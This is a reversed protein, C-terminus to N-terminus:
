RQMAGTENVEHVLDIFARLGASIHRRGSYYLALGAVAPMRDDLVRVLRRSAVDEEIYWEAVQALGMGQRAADLMLAPADLILRGPVEVAQVKGKAMFEWPSPAGGPLRARICQHASLDALSGPPPHRAFYGPSGVVAMRLKAGIPVRVMDRPVLEGPRIGVDFGEGVIDVMRGETVIDVTMAPHRRLFECVIPEFVMRAAGLSSNIRLTGTPTARQDNLASMAGQIQAIAPEVQALFAHGAETLSVSRTTRHFLRVGLRTELGAVASSLASTSMGLELAAARFSHRRAVALVAEFEVLGTKHMTRFIPILRASNEMKELHNPLWLNSM